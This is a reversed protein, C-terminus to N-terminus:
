PAARKTAARVTKTAAVPAVAPATVAEPTKAVRLANERALSDAVFQAFPKINQKSSAENLASMYEDRHAVEIVTWAYGGSALMANMLFRGMRGNGDMYPHIFVFVFHGLVARVAPHPEDRLLDFLTPMMDRVADVQPPVHAANRIFVQHARYGALQHTQLLGADVSPKFLEGYWIRHDSAAVAGPNGGNLIKSLSDEVTRRALFYGRAAMADRNQADSRSLDPNWEGSAVKRILDETVRYGEISLSNYADRVYTERVNAMYSNVDGPMGPPQPFSDIVAQRMELWMLRIRTVYGMEGRVIPLLPLRVDEFPNTERVDYGARRITGLVDDALDARNAARLAGVLRGAISSRGGELLLRNLVSADRLSLLAAQADLPYTRFFADSVNILASELSMARIGNVVAAEAAPLSATARCDFMTHGHPLQVINNNGAPSYLMVQSPLTTNGAYLRLAFDPSVWWDTGFRSEAYRQVFELASAYWATTEGENDEPRNPMYWGRMLPQLFGNSLLAERHPRSLQSTQLVHQDADQLTKLAALAEALRAQAPTTAM